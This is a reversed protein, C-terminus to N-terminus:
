KIAKAFGFVEARTAPRNPFFSVHRTSLEGGEDIFYVKPIVINFTVASIILQKQWENSDDFIAGGFEQRFRLDYAPNQIYKDEDDQSSIDTDLSGATMMIALAEARTINDQARFKANARTVLNNDAGIEVARCIWNNTSNHKM